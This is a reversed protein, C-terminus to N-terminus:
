KCNKGCIVVVFCKEIHSFTIKKKLNRRRNHNRQAEMGNVFSLHSYFSNIDIENREIEKFLSTFYCYYFSRKLVDERTNSNKM